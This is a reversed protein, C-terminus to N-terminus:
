NLNVEDPSIRGEDIWKQILADREALRTKAKSEEAKANDADAIAKTMAEEAEAIKTLLRNERIKEYEGITMIVEGIGGNLYEQVTRDIEVLLNDDRPVDGRNMYNFLAKLNDPVDIAKSNLFITTREDALQLKNERDYTVYQYKAKNMGFPDYCCLFIVFSPKLKGYDQGRKLNKVAMASHYYSSRKEIFEDSEYQLEICYWSKEDTFRVDMRISKSTLALIITEETSVDIKDALRIEAIEKDLIRELLGRCLEENQMVLGFMIYNTFATRKNM